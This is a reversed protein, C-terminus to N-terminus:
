KLKSKYLQMSQSCSIVFAQESKKFVYFIKKLGIASSFGLKKRVQSLLLRSSTEFLETFFRLLNGKAVVEGKLAFFALVEGKRGECGRETSM